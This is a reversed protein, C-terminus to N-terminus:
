GGAATTDPTDAPVETTETPAEDTTPQDGEQSVAPTDSDPTGAGSGAVAPVVFAFILAALVGGVVTVVLRAFQDQWWHRTNRETVM